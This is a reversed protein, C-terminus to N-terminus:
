SYVSFVSKNIDKVTQMVRNKTTMIAFSNPPSRGIMAFFSLASGAIMALGRIVVITSATASVVYKAMAVHSSFIYDPIGM